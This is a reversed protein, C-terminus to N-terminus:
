KGGESPAAGETENPEEDETENRTGNGSENRKGDETKRRKLPPPGRRWAERAARRSERYARWGPSNPLTVLLFWLLWIVAVIFGAAATANSVFARSASPAFVALLALASLGAGIALLRRGAGLPLLGLGVAAILAVLLTQLVWGRLAVVRLAGAAGPAPRLTSYLLHRGDTAFTGLAGRDVNLGETVWRLLEDSSKNGRPWTSFGRLVWVM